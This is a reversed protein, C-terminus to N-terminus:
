ILKELDSGSMFINTDDASLILEMISSLKTINVYIICLFPGLISGPLVGGTVPPIKSNINCFYQTRNTLYRKLWGLATGRIDYYNLKKWYFLITLPISNNSLYLFIGITDKPLGGTINNTLKLLALYISLKGRFEFQNESLVNQKNAFDSIRKFM